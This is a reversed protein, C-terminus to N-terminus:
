EGKGLLHKTAADLADTLHKKDAEADDTSIPLMISFPEGKASARVCIHPQGKVELDVLLHPAHDAAILLAQAYNM